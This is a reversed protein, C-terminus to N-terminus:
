TALAAPTLVGNCIVSGPFRRLHSWRPMSVPLVLNSVWDDFVKPLVLPLMLSLFRVPLIDVADSSSLLVDVVDVVEVPSFTDLEVCRLSDLVVIKYVAKVLGSIIPVVCFGLMVKVM